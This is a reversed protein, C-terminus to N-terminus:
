HANNAKISICRNAVALTSERHSILLITKKGALSRITDVIERETEEDLASTAEDLVLFERDHYLARAISVRQRQGGSFRVGREGLQTDLGGKLERLVQGLQADELAARVKDDNIEADAVGLAVNRRLTDDILYSQQPIYAVMSQWDRYAGRLDTGNILVRGATPDLFGLLLDALTSKGAGSPGVLGVTEGANIEFSLNEFVCNRDAAYSFAIAHASLNQFRQTPMAGLSSETPKSNLPGIEPRQYNSQSPLSETKALKELALDRALVGVVFRNSRVQNIGSLLATSAPMLRLAAAGILGLLPLLAAGSAGDLRSFFVLAVLFVIMALEIAQRPILNLVTLLATADVLGRGAKSLRALFYGECGLIRVERLGGIAQNASHMVEATLAATSKNLKAARHRTYFLVIAFVISLVMLLLMVAMMNALAILTGLAIFVMGDSILRLVSGVFGNAFAQTYWVLRNTLEASSNDLHFRYPRHQYASLLRTMLEARISESMRTINGQLRFTALAKGTFVIVLAIGLTGVPDEGLILILWGPFLAIAVSKGILLSVFPAVLAVALLDLGTSFLMFLVILPARKLSDGGVFSVEAKLVRLRALM